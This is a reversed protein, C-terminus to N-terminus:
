SADLRILAPAEAPSAYSERVRRAFDVVDIGMYTAQEAAAPLMRALGSRALTEAATDKGLHRNLYAAAVQILGQIFQGHVTTRDAALWLPELMEHCEWWYAFNYLDIGDLYRSLRRWDQPKWPAVEADGRGYSHGAPDRLPHANLGPVYRYPPLEASGYRPWSPDPAQPETLARTRTV